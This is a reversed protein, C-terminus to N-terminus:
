LRESFTLPSSCAVDSSAHNLLGYLWMAGHSFLLLLLPLLFTLTPIFLLVRTGM